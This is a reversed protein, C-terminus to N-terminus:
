CLSCRQIWRWYTSMTHRWENGWFLGWVQGSRKWFCSVSSFMQKWSDRFYSCTVNTQWNLTLFDESTHVCLLKLVPSQQVYMLISCHIIPYSSCECMPCFHTHSVSLSLSLSLSHSLSLSLSMSATLRASVITFGGHIIRGKLPCMSLPVSNRETTVVVLVHRCLMCPVTCLPM